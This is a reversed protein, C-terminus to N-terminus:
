TCRLRCRCSVGAARTPSSLDAARQQQTVMNQQAASLYVHTCTSSTYGPQVYALACPDFPTLSLVIHSYTFCSALVVMAVRLCSSLRCGHGGSLACLASLPLWVLHAITTFSCPSCFPRRFRRLSKSTGATLLLDCFPLVPVCPLCSSLLVCAALLFRSPLCPTTLL